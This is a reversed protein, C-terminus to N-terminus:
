RAVAIIHGPTIVPDPDRHRRWRAIRVCPCWISGRHKTTSDAADRWKSLRLPWRRSEPAWRQEKGMPSRCHWPLLRDLRDSSRIGTAGSQLPAASIDDSESRARWRETAGLRLVHPIYSQRVQCVLTTIFTSRLVQWRENANTGGTAHHHRKGFQWGDTAM